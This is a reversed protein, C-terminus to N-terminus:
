PGFRSSKIIYIAYTLYDTHGSGLDVISPM